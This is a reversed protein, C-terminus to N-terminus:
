SQEVNAWEVSALGTLFKYGSVNTVQGRYGVSHGSGVGYRVQSANRM